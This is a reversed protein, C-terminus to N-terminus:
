RADSKGVGARGRKPKEKPPSIWKRLDAVCPDCLTFGDENSGLGEQTSIQVNMGEFDYEGATHGCRNCVTLKVRTM